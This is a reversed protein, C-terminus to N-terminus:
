YSTTLTRHYPQNNEKLDKALKWLANDVLSASVGLIESLREGVVVTAVRIETEERSGKPLLQYSDVKDALSSAYRIAGLARLLQPVKYDAFVTLVELNTISIRKLMSVDYAFIQARKYFNVSKGNLKSVDQFSPFNKVINKIIQAADFKSLKLLNIIDADFRTKLIYGAERLNKVRENLLPISTHNASLFLHRVDRTTITELYAANLIPVKEHIARTFSRYLRKGDTPSLRKRINM